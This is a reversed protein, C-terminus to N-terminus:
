RPLRMGPLVRKRRVLEGLADREILLRAVDGGAVARWESGGFRVKQTSSLGWAEFLEDFLGGGGGV